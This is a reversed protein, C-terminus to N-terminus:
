RTGIAKTPAGFVYTRLQLTVSLEAGGATTMGQVDMIRLSTELDSLFRKIDFYSRATISLTIDVPLILAAQAGPQAKPPAKSESFSLSGIKIGNAYAASGFQVLLSPVNAETPLAQTVRELVEPSINQAAGISTNLSDLYARENEMTTLESQTEANVRKIDDIIPRLIFLAVIVFVIILLLFSAGYYETFFKSPQKDEQKQPPKGLQPKILDPM